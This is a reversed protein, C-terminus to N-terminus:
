IRQVRKEVDDLLNHPNGCIELTDAEKTFLARKDIGSNFATLDNFPQAAEVALADVNENGLLLEFVSHLGLTLLIYWSLSSVWRADLDDTYIGAQLMTKFQATLPFPLKMVVLSGFFSPVWSMMITQPVYTAVQTKLTALLPELARPDGLQPMAPKQPVDPKALYKGERFNSILNLLVSNYTSKSISSGNKRLLHSLKIFASERIELISEPQDFGDSLKSISVRIYGVLIMAALIPLLVWISLEPDLNLDVDMTSVNRHSILAINKVSRIIFKKSVRSM